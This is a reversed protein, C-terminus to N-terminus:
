GYLVYILTGDVVFKYCPYTIGPDFEPMAVLQGYILGLQHLLHDTVQADTKGSTDIPNEYGAGGIFLGENVAMNNGAAWGAAASLCADINVIPASPPPPPESEPTPAPPPQIEVAPPAPAPAPQSAPVTQSFSVQSSSAPAAQSSPAAPPRSSSVLPRNSQSRSQSTAIESRSSAPAGSDARSTSASVSVSDAQTVSTAAESQEPGSAGGAVCAVLLSSVLVASASVSGIILFKRRKM